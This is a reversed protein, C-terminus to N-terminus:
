DAFIANRQEDRGLEHEIAMILSDFVSPDRDDREFQEQFDRSRGTEAECMQAGAISLDVNTMDSVTDSSSSQAAAQRRTLVKM